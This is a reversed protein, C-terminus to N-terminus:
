RYFKKDIINKKNLKDSTKGRGFRLKREKSLDVSVDM